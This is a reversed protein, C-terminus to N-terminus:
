KIFNLLYNLSEYVSCLATSFVSATDAVAERFVQFVWSLDAESFFPLAGFQQLSM